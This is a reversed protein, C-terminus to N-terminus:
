LDSIIITHPNKEAFRSPRTGTLQETFYSHASKMGKQSIQRKFKDTTQIYRLVQNDHQQSLRSETIYFVLRANPFM